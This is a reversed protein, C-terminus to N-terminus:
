KQLYEEGENLEKMGHTFEPISKIIQVVGFITVGHHVGIGAEGFLDVVEYGATVVLIIGSALNLYASEAIRKLM